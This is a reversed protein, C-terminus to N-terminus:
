EKLPFVKYISCFVETCAVQLYSCSLLWVVLSIQLSGQVERIVDDRYGVGVQKSFFVLRWSREIYGSYVDSVTKVLKPHYNLAATPDFWM